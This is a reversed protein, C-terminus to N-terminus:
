MPLFLYLMLFLLSYVTSLEVTSKVSSIHCLLVTSPYTCYLGQNNTFSNYYMFHAFPMYLYVCLHQHSAPFLDNIYDKLTCYKICYMDTTYVTYYWHLLRYNDLDWLGVTFSITLLRLNLLDIAQTLLDLARNLLGNAQSLLNETDGPDLASPPTFTTRNAVYKSRCKFTSVSAM